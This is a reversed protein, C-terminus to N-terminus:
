ANHGRNKLVESLMERIKVQKKHISDKADIRVIDFEKLMKKYEKVDFSFENSENIVVKGNKYKGILFNMSPSGIFSMMNDQYADSEQLVSAQNNNSVVLSTGVGLCTFAALFLSLFKISKKM